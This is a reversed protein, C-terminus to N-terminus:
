SGAKLHLWQQCVKDLLYQDNKQFPFFLFYGLPKGPSFRFQFIMSSFIPLRRGHGQQIQHFQVQLGPCSSNHISSLLRHQDYPLQIGFIIEPM